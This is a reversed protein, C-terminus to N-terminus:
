KKFNLGAVGAISGLVTSLLFLRPLADSPFPNKLILVGAVILIFTSLNGAVAGTVLGNRGSQRASMFASIFACLCYLHRCIFNYLVDPPNFFSFLLGALGSFVFALAFALLFPLIYKKFSASLNM